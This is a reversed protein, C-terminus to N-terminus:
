RRLLFEKANLLGWLVDEFGRRRDPQRDIHQELSNIEVREPARTLAIWFLQDILERTTKASALLETIRNGQNSLLENVSPGSIMQFAQGMTPENSRECECTLLRPPKGFIELVQDVSADKRGRKRETHTGPLQAARLGPPYGSFDSPVGTVQHQCDFLQEATLRRVLAHSFNTEDDGNTNNPESALQYTSSNMIVRIAHRLDFHHTAFDSAL